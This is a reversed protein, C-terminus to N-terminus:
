DQSIIIIKKGFNYDIINQILFKKKNRKIFKSLNEFKLNILSYFIKQKINSFQNSNIAVDTIDKFDINSKELCFKISEM